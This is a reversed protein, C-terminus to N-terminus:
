VSLLIMFGVAILGPILIWSSIAPAITFHRVIDQDALPFLM